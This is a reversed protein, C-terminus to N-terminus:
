VSVLHNDWSLDSNQFVRQLTLRSPDLWYFSGDGSSLIFHKNFKHSALGGVDPVSVDALWTARSLDWISVLDGKPSSTVAMKGDRSVCVSAIYQRLKARARPAHGLLASLRPPAYKNQKTMLKHMFVLPQDDKANGQYQAGLVVTNDHTIAFHRLSIQPHPPSLQEILEGKTLDIYSLNSAMSALNLKQRGYHPHTHIGGNAVVLTSGDNLLGIEHPGVGHSSIEKIRKFGQKISYVAIVGRGNEYDNEAAYLYANDHSFAGHGYFHRNKSTSISALLEGTNIEIIKLWTGPRRAFFAMYRGDRSMCSSHGRSALPFQVGRNGHGDVLAIFHKETKDTYASAYNNTAHKLHNAEGLARSWPLGTLGAVLISGVLFDRRKIETM